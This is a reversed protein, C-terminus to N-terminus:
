ALGLKISLSEIKRVGEFESYDLNEYYKNKSDTKVIANKKIVFAGKCNILLTPKEKNDATNRANPLSAKIEYNMIGDWEDAKDNNFSKYTEIYGKRYHKVLCEVLSGANFLEFNRIEHNGRVGEVKLTIDDDANKIMDYVMFMKAIQSRNNKTKELPQVREIEKICLAIVENKTLTLIQKKM